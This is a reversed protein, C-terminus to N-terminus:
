WVLLGDIVTRRRRRYRISVICFTYAVPTGKRRPRHLEDKMGSMKRRAPGPRRGCDTKLRYRVRARTHKHARGRTATAKKRWWWRRRDIVTRARSFSLLTPPWTKLLEAFFYRVVSTRTYYKINYLLPWELFVTCMICLLVGCVWLSNTFVTERSFFVSWELEPWIRSVLNVSLLRQSKRHGLTKIKM